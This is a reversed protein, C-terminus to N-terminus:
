MGRTSGFWRETREMLRAVNGHTVIVGKPRGTSGSTYILYAANEPQVRIGLEAGSEWAMQEEATEWKVARVKNGAWQTEMGKGILLVVARSDDLMYSLREPPYDPDLPVYAAGAKLVGLIAIVMEVGRQFYLAVRDEVGAGLKKLRAALQNARKNLEVYTLRQGTCSVAQSSPHLAARAAYRDHISGHVEAAEWGQWRTLAQEREAETLLSIEQLVIQPRESVQELVRLFHGAMRAITEDEFLASNYQLAGYLCEHAEAM